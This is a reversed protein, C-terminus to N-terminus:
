FQIAGHREIHRDLREKMRNVKALAKQTDPPLNPYERKVQELASERKGKKM